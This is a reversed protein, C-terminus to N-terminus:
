SSHSQSNKRETDAREQKAMAAKQEKKAEEHEKQGRFNEKRSELNTLVKERGYVILNDGKSVQTDGHPTGIYAGDRRRIGILNIGEEKLELNKLKKNELWDGKRCGSFREQFRKRVGIHV